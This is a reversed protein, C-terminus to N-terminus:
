NLILSSLADYKVGYHVKLLSQKTLDILFLLLFSEQVHLYVLYVLFLSHNLMTDSLNIPSGLPAFILNAAVVISTQIKCILNILLKPDFPAEICLIDM